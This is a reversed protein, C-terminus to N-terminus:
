SMLTRWNQYFKLARRWTDKSKILEDTTKRLARQTGKYYRYQIVSAVIDVPFHDNLAKTVLPAFPEDIEFISLQDITLPPCIYDVPTATLLRDWVKYGEGYTGYVKPQHKDLDYRVFPAVVLKKTVPDPIPYRFNTCTCPTNVKWEGSPHSGCFKLCPPHM